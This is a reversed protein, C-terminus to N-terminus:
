RLSTTVLPVLVSLATPLLHDGHDVAGGSRLGVPSNCSWFVELLREFGGAQEVPSLCLMKELVASGHLAVDTAGEALLALGL